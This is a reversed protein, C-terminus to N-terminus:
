ATIGYDAVMSAVLAALQGKLFDSRLMSTNFVYVDGVLTTRLGNAGLHYGIELYDDPGPFLTVDKEMSSLASLGNVGISTTKTDNNFDSVVIQWKSRQVPAQVNPITANPGYASVYAQSGEPVGTHRLPCNVYADASTFGSLINVTGSSLPQIAVASVVCYSSNLSGGPLAIAAAAGNTKLAVAAHGNYATRTFSNPTGKEVLPKGTRLCLGSVGGAQTNSMSRPSMFNCLNAIKTAVVDSNSVEIREAGSGGGIKIGDLRILKGIM